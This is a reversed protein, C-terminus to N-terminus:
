AMGGAEARQARVVTRYEESTEMLAHHTGRMQISGHDMLCIQDAHEITQLRHAIVLVTKGRGLERLSECIEAENRRDVSATAEDWILVPADKLFARAIAIRQREGGSLPVGGDGIVTQYGDPLGMIFRHIRARRAAEYVEEESADPRAMRINDLCTAHFIWCDQWVAAISSRFRSVTDTRLATGGIRVTGSRPFYFGFLMQAVTSKGAGSPGILATTTGERISLSLDRLVAHEAGAYSFTIHELVVDGALPQCSGHQEASPLSPTQPMDGRLLEALEQIGSIGKGAKLWAGMTKESSSKWAGLIFFLMVFDPMSVTGRLAGPLALLFPLYRGCQLALEMARSNLTTYVLSSMTCRRLAEARREVKERHRQNAHFAKLSAIGRIGDLSDAFFADSALWERKGARQVLPYFLPPIIQVCITALLLVIGAPAFRPLCWALIGVSVLLAATAKPLYETYYFSLWEVKECLTTIIEGSRKHDVYQPGAQFLRVFLQKRLQTKVIGGCVAAARIAPRHLFIGATSATVPLSLFVGMRLLDGAWLGIAAGAWGVANLLALLNDALEYAAVRGSAGGTGSGLSRLERFMSILGKRM